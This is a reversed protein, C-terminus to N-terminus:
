RDQTGVHIERQAVIAAEPSPLGFRGTFTSSCHLYKLTANITIDGKAGELSDRPFGLSDLLFGPVAM